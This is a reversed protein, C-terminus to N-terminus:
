NGFTKSGSLEKKVKESLYMKMLSQYPVDKANALQKIRALLSSPLRLSISETTNKLNSFVVEEAKSWDVYETSDHSAWFKQEEVENKFSPTKKTHKM